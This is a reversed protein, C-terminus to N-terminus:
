RSWRVGVGVLDAAAEYRGNGVVVSGEENTPNLQKVISDSVDQSAYFTHAYGVDVSVGQTVEWSGGVGLVLKDMDIQLVSLTRTPIASQEVMAGARATWGPAVQVDGGLRLSWTDQFERPVNVAGVPIAGLGPANDVKIGKATTRISDLSSWREYVVNAEVDWTPAAYRVGGRLVWPFDLEVGITDGEVTAQDFLPHSPLRQTVKAEPDHVHTPLQASLGLQLGDVPEYWVGLNGSPNWLSQIEAKLLADFDSDEPDGVFGPSASVVNVLRLNLFMNQVGAGVWLNDRARWAVAVEASAFFSGSSDVLTYRQPGSEPYKGAAGNPAFFGAGLVFRETGMRWAGGLQPIPLPSAESSVEPFRIEQGSDLTRPARQFTARQSVLTADAMLHVEGDIGGLLAPNYWLANMDWVGVTAAGGRGLARVGHPPIFFGGAAAPSAALTLLLLALLLSLIRRSSM